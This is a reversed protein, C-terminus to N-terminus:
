QGPQKYVRDLDLQERFGPKLYFYIRDLVKREEHSMRGANQDALAEAGARQFDSFQEHTVTQAELDAAYRAYQNLYETFPKSIM